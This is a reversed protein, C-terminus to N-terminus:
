NDTYGVKDIKHHIDRQMWEVDRKLEVLGAFSSDSKLALVLLLLLFLINKEMVHRFIM